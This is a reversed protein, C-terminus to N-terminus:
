LTKLYEILDNLQDKTMDNTVGHRDYPNFRTWIEELTDAMGNHLYPASDYINNLHPVDFKGARDLAQKTGVDRQQRDTFYPPFHCFICQGEPPIERGDNARSREFVLKGRRQAETLETGLPRHRNPPRPITVTYDNVARLEDPTFPATRTFFVALRAGCQRALSVNTGEWKFPDTDYIGRLTRNDVPSVGIGDAEIDYTLGDVHGDPHCTACAFQRQFTINANHFLKEGRRIHTTKKPGGLDVRAVAARRALDIVSLSDDLTNAVWATKGDPAVAIGRPNDKTEVRAVVFEASAGLWNPLVDRRDEDSTRRVLSVLKDVDIVAARNSGASTAVATKGDPSFAVDTIDAFYRHPEDLLLQDVRGGKWLVALGNTITWGQLIRTMPVLNKTRNMTALAFEGSPHWAVGLLLNSEPVVWRDEVKKGDVDLVTVESMPPTRFKVFRSLANTVLIRKGDPSLAASWPNRSAALRKTEKGTALDVVSVADFATGLVFLTRGAPDVALGHPEDAVPIAQVVQRSAVDIVSVSDNLRSTVYARTGDSSFAVDTAQGGVTVEAVRARTTADVVAVSGSAECAVWVERGDPRFALNVPNKYTVEFHELLSRASGGAMAGAQVDWEQASGAGLATRKGLAARESEPRTPHAIQAKAKTFDFPKGHANAHCAACTKETVPRLGAKRSAVRDRMVPEAQYDSGAGHCSECGVGELHGFGGSAPAQPGGGTAHCKLCAPAGQPDGTVGMTRALEGAKATSLSAYAQAHRSMRWLSLQYGMMPGQHCTGCALVGVYKPGPIAPPLASAAPRSSSGGEPVPHALAKWAAEIDIKPKHHVAVHSGKVYHCVECDRQTFRRLGAKMAAERDRMVAEDMYESGPGHCKECQVGDELRFTADKEWKEADGATAHCGLCIPAKEPEDPIGSLRAMQRAEPTALSAWAKSHASRLWHSYQNGAAKGEHCRACVQAGVFVPQKQAQASAAAPLLVLAVASAATVPVFRSVRM